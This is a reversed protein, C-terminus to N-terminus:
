GKNRNRNRNRQRGQGPGPGGKAVLTYLVSSVVAAVIAVIVFEHVIIGVVCALGFLPPIAFRLRRRQEPSM